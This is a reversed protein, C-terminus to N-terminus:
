ESVRDLHKSEFIPHSIVPILHRPFLDLRADDANLVRRPVTRVTAKEHWNKFINVKSFKTKCGVNHSHSCMGDFPCGTFFWFNWVNLNM